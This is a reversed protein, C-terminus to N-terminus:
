WQKAWSIFMSYGSPARLIFGDDISYEVYLMSNWFFGTTIAISFAVGYDKLTQHNSEIMGFEGWLWTGRAHIYFFDTLEYRYELTTLLYQTAMFQAFDAGPYVPRSLDDSESLPPGGGIRHVSWRDWHRNPMWGAHIFGLLRHQEPFFPIDMAAVLYATIKLYDQTNERTFQFFEGLQYNTWHHRRGVVVDAGVAVGCHPLELLNRTITDMRVRLHLQHFDTDPPLITHDATNKTKQVYWYGPEYLLQISLENDFDQRDYNCFFNTLPTRWGLGIGPQLYGYKLEMYTASAGDVTEDQAVPINSNEWHFLAEFGSNNWTSDSFAAYNVIGTLVARVRRRNDESYQRVFIAGYPNFINDGLAPSIINVGLTMATTNRRDRQPVDINQQAIPLNPRLSTDWEFQSALKEVNHLAPLAWLEGGLIKFQLPDGALITRHQSQFLDQKHQTEEVTTHITGRSFPPQIQHQTSSDTIVPSPAEWEEWTGPQDDEMQIYEFGGCGILLVCLLLVVIM